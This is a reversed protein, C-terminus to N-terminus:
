LNLPIKEEQTYRGRRFLFLVINIGECVHQNVYSKVAMMCKKNSVCTQVIFIICTQAIIYRPWVM